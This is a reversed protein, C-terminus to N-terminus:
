RSSGVDPVTKGDENVCHELDDSGPLLLSQSVVLDCRTYHLAGDKLRVDTIVPGVDKYCAALFSLSLVALMKRM